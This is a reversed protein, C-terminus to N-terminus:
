VNTAHVFFFFLNTALAIISTSHTHRYKIKESQNHGGYVCLSLSLIFKNTQWAFAKSNISSYFHIHFAFRVRECMYMYVIHRIKVEIRFYYYHQSAPVQENSEFDNEAIWQRNCKNSETLIQRHIHKNLKNKKKFEQACQEFTNVTNKNLLIFLFCSWVSCIHYLEIWDINEINLQLHTVLLIFM